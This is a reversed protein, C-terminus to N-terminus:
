EGIEGFNANFKRFTRLHRVTMVQCAIQCKRRSPTAAEDVLGASSRTHVGSFGREFENGNGIERPDAVLGRACERLQQSPELMAAVCRDKMGGKLRQAAMMKKGITKGVIERLPRQRVCVPVIKGFLERRQVNAVVNGDRRQAAIEATNDTFITRRIWVKGALGRELTKIEALAHFHGCRESSIRSREVFEPFADLVEAM